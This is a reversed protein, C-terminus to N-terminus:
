VKPLFKMCLSARTTTSAAQAAARIAAAFAMSVKGAKLCFRNFRAQIKWEADISQRGLHHDPAAREPETSRPRQHRHGDTAARNLCQQSTEGPRHCAHPQGLVPLRDHHAV